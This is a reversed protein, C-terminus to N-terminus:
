GGSNQRRKRPSTLYLPLSPFLPTFSLNLKFKHVNGIKIEFERIVRIQEDKCWKRYQDGYELELVKKITEARDFVTKLKARVAKRDSSTEPSKYEPHRPLCEM